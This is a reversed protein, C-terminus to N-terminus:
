LIVKHIKGNECGMYITDDTTNIRVDNTDIKTRIQRKSKIGSQGFRFAMQLIVEDLQLHSQSRKLKAHFVTNVEFPM